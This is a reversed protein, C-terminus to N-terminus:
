LRTRENNARWEIIRKTKKWIQRVRETSLGYRKGISVFTEGQERAKYIDINREKTTFGNQWVAEWHKYAM